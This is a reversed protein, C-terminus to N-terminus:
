SLFNKHTWSFSGRIYHILRGDLLTVAQFESDEGANVSHWNAGDSRAKDANFQKVKVQKQKGREM